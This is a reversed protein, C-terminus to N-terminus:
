AKALLEGLTPRHERVFGLNVALRELHQDVLRQQGGLPHESLFGRVQDALVPNGDDDIDALRVIGGLMSPIAHSAFREQLEDWHTTIFHWTSSGGARGALLMRIVYPADQTRIETRAMEQLESILEPRRVATMAALHRWQDLPDVPHSVHEHM